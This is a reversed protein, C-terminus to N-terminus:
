DIFLVCISDIVCYTLYAEFTPGFGCVLYKKAISTVYRNMLPAIPHFVDWHIVPETIWACLPRLRFIVLANDAREFAPRQLGHPIRPHMHRAHQPQWFYAIVVSLRHGINCIQVFNVGAPYAQFAM